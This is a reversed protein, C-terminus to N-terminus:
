VSKDIERQEKDKGSIWTLYKEIKKEFGRSVPEYFKREKIEKPFYDQSVWGRHGQHSYIYNRGHGLKKMLSTHSSRLLKPIPVSGTKKVVSLARDIAQYSRNSKPACALYIVGQALNIRAEPMGVLEVAHLVDVALGLAQPDANGVDESALIVLRRAIFVPDEGGELMRALYYVAADPDSGRISKILASVTDYHEDGKKDFRVSSGQFMEILNELSIPFYHSEKKQSKFLIEELRNYLKRADGDSTSLLYDLAEDSFLQHSIKYHALAKGLMKELDRRELPELVFIHCRSILAGNLQYSPNETTAGLLYFYGKEIFPLLVDQQSRNLRHIEDVFVVTKQQREFLNQKAAEGIERIKKAGLDVATEQFIGAEVEKIFANAFSTKGCGPPGWLIFNHLYGSKIKQFLKKNCNFVKKQGIFESFSGPRMREALPQDISNNNWEFLNM